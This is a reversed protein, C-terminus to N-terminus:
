DDVKEAIKIEESTLLGSASGALHQLGSIAGTGGRDVREAESSNVYRSYQYVLAECYFARGM